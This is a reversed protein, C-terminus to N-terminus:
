QKRRRWDFDDRELIMAGRRVHMSSDEQHRCGHLGVRPLLGEHRMTRALTSDATRDPSKCRSVAKENRLRLSQSAGADRDVTASERDTTGTALEKM